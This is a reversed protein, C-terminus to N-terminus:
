STFQVLGLSEIQLCPAKLRSVGVGLGVDLSQVVDHALLVHGDANGFVELLVSFVGLSHYLVM